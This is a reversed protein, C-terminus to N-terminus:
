VGVKQMKRSELRYMMMERAYRDSGVLIDTLDEYEVELADLSAAAAYRVYWNSSSLIQKLTDIVRQEPYRALSSASVTAYEWKDPDTERAFALLADLAPEYRYRGFYRIASLRLEKDERPDKMVAMMEQTYGGSKFRIYNLIALQTRLSFTKREQWLRGILERYDGTASLLGETLIKEHLFIDGRDQLRLATMIKETNGFSFLAQLANVRCYLNDKQVYGLLVDQLAQIPMHSQLMYRSLIHSFYAAQINERKQYLVALYLIVPQIQILYQRGDSDYGDQAIPSLVRDFAMLNKVRSLKRGLRELHAEEVPEGRRIRELQEGVREEMDHVRKDLRPQSTKLVLNYVVNFVIMSACVAGYIYLIVEIRM